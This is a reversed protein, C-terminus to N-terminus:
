PNQDARGDFTTRFNIRLLFMRREYVSGRTGSPGVGTGVGRGLGDGSVGTGVATGVGGGVGPSSCRSWEADVEEPFCWRKAQQWQLAWSYGGSHNMTKSLRGEADSARRSVRQPRDHGNRRRDPGHPCSNCDRIIHVDGDIIVRSLREAIDM